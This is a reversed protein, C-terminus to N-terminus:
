SAAQLVFDTRWKKDIRPLPGPKPIKAPNHIIYENHFWAYLDLHDQLRDLRKSTCWTRRGLRNVNARLMAATHNLDFLPDHDGSKLEGQGVVCGRRGKVEIHSAKPLVELIITSYQPCMDTTITVNAEAVGGLIQLVARRVEPRDDRRPGYKLRSKEALLGKAPMSAAKLAIIRRTGEEVVLSISAPLMKSHIWTEMDDFQAKVVKEESKQTQENISRAREALYILKRGVTKPNIKLERAIRRQSLFSGLKFAIASNLHPKHQGSAPHFTSSSFYKKCSVCKFRRIKRGDFKRKFFGQKIVRCCTNPDAAKNSNFNPCELVKMM